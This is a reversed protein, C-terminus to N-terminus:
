RLILIEVSIFSVTTGTFILTTDLHGDSSQTLRFGHVRASVGHHSNSMTFRSLSGRVSNRYILGM